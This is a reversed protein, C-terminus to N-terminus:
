HSEINKANRSTFLGETIIDDIFIFKAKIIEKQMQNQWKNKQVSLAKIQPENLNILLKM